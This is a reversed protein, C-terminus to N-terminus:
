LFELVDPHRRKMETLEDEYRKLHQIKMQVFTETEERSVAAALEEYDPVSTRLRDFPVTTPGNFAKQM